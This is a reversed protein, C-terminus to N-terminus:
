NGNQNSYLPTFHPTENPKPMAFGVRQKEPAPGAGPPKM